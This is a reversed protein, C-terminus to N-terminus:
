RPETRKLKIIDGDKPKRNGGGWTNEIKEVKALAVCIDKVNTERLTYRQLLRLIVSTFELSPEQSLLDMLHASAAAKQEAVKQEITEEQIEADHGPFLGAMSSEDERKREKANARNKAHERLARYETERFEKLGDLSKTGYTIYFHPRDATAKHIPTSVVARFRGARRLTHEFLQLAAAGRPLRPDLRDQWAPGGFIPDLSAITEVDDSHVFRNIFEYMFNVLVECRSREFLPRIKELPYGTWGTPDIFILPLSSGIFANIEDVADEFRGHHTRIEFAEKASHFPAAAASLQRFADLDTECFFLRIRRRKGGPRELTRRQADKLVEIAIMFSADSFTETKTEWPGCFGDVFTLDSFTLVKFALGELYRKLIFHKAKTQERGLYPDPAEM